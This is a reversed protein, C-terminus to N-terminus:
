RSYHCLTCCSSHSTARSFVSPISIFLLLLLPASTSSHLTACFLPLSRQGRSVQVSTRHNQCGQLPLPLPRPRRSSSVAGLEMPVVASPDARATPDELGMIWAFAAEPNNVGALDFARRQEPRLGARIAQQLEAETIGQIANALQQMEEVFARPTSSTIRLAM